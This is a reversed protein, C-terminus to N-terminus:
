LSASHTAALPPARVVQRRGLSKWPVKMPTALLQKGYSGPRRTSRRSRVVIRPREASTSAGNPEVYGLYAKATSAQARGRIMGPEGGERRRGAPRGPEHRSSTPNPLINISSPMIECPTAIRVSPSTPSSMRSYTPSGRPTRAWDSQRQSGPQYRVAPAPVAPNTGSPRSPWTGTGKAARNAPYRTTAGPTSRPSKPSYRACKPLSTTDRARCSTSTPADRRAPGSRRPRHSPKPASTPAHTARQNWTVSTPSFWRETESVENWAARPRTQCTGPWRKRLPARSPRSPTIPSSSV